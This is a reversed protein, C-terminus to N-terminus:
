AISALLAEIKADLSSLMIFREIEIKKTM